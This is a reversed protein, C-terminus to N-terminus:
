CRGGVWGSEVLNALIQRQRDDLADHIKQMAAAAAARMEDFHTAFPSFVSAAQEETLTEARFATAAQHRSEGWQGRMAKLKGRLEDLAGAIVKEQGPTADLREFLSYLAYRRWGGPGGRGEGGGHCGHRGHRGWHGGHRWGQRYYHAGVAVRALAVLALTGIVFGFM